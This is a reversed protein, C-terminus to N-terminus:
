TLRWSKTYNQRTEYDSNFNRFVFKSKQSAPIILSYMYTDLRLCKGGYRTITRKNTRETNVRDIEKERKGRETQCVREKKLQQSNIRMHTTCM